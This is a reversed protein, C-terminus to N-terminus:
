HTTSDGCDLTFTASSDWEITAIQNVTTVKLGSSEGAKIEKILQQLQESLGTIAAIPHAGSESRGSLANHVTVGGGGGGGGGGSGDMLQWINDPEGQVLFYLSGDTMCLACSGVPVDTPLNEVDAITDFLFEKLGYKTKGSEANLVIM